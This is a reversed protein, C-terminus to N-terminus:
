RHELSAAQDSGNKSEKKKMSRGILASALFLLGLVLMLGGTYLNVNIGLSIRYIAPDSFLGYGGLMLGLLTLMSGLHIRIDVQM